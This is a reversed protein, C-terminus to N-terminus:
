VLNNERLYKVTETCGGLNIDNLVVQPFTSGEGFQTYFADRQFDVGLKYERYNYKKGELVQKIKTCYPCGTRTYVAFNM